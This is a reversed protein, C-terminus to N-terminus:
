DAWIINYKIFYYKKQKVEVHGRRVCFLERGVDGSYVIVDGPAFRYFYVSYALQNIESPYLDRFFRVSSLLAGCRKFMVDDHLIKPLDDILGEEGPIAQGRGFSM